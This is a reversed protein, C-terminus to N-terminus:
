FKFFLSKKQPNYVCITRTHTVGNLEPNKQGKKLRGAHHKEAQKERGRYKRLTFLVSRAIHLRDIDFCTFNIRYQNSFSIEFCGVTYGAQRQRRVSSFLREPDKKKARISGQRCFL